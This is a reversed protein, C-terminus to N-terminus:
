AAVELAVLLNGTNALRVVDGIVIIAPSALKEQHVALPLMALPAIVHRETQLTGHQIAMAHIEADMGADILDRIIEAIKKIGMYIVLTTKSAVLAQWNLPEGDQTHGTVMTVGHTFARHTVPVGLGAPVAIGSTIGPIVECDVGAARLALMEEGGRGFLFPDGGKLRVVKQGQGALAILMRNIFDQPTSKCGGRKGVFVVRAQQCHELVATNVLDDVLVVDALTLAKVAKLTMLEPDGPGAGVLFVKGTM